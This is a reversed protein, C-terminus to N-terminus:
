RTVRLRVWWRREQGPDLTWCEGSQRAERLDDHPASCPEIAVTYHGTRGDTPWGGYCLWLGLCPAAEVDWEVRLAAGGDRLECHGERLPQTFLKAAWRAPAAPAVSADAGLGLDPWPLWQGPNGMAPDSVWMVKVRDVEDPAVIRMGPTAALLPHLSWMCDFPEAAENVLQYDLRLADGELRARRVFRYPWALGRISSVLGESTRELSWPRSWLEGHDPWDAGAHRGAAINPFCEDVGSVDFRSFDAGYTAAPYAGDQLTSPLLWSRGSVRDVLSALKGGREALFVATLNENELTTPTPPAAQM